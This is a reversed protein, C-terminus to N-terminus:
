RETMEYYDSLADGLLNLGLIIASVAVGVTVALWPNINLYNQADRLM